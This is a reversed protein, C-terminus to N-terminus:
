GPTRRRRVAFAGALGVGFISLTVPEPVDVGSFVNLTDTAVQVNDSNFRSKTAVLNGNADEFGTGLNTLGVIANACINPLSGDDCSYLNATQAFISGPSVPNWVIVDSLTTHDADDIVSYGSHWQTTASFQNSVASSIESSNGNADTEYFNCTQSTTGIVITCGSILPAATASGASILAAAGLSAVIMWIRVSM